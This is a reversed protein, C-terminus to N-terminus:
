RSSATATLKALSRCDCFAQRRQRGPPLRDGASRLHDTCRQRREVTVVVTATDRDSGAPVVRVMVAAEFFGGSDNDVTYTFTEIGTFGPSPSYLFANGTGNPGVSGNGSPGSAVGVLRPAGGPIRRDNALVDLFNDSTDSLVTFVDDGVFIEGVSVTVLASGTGGRGDSFNYSFTETGIFGATPTYFLFGGSPGFELTGGETPTNFGTVALPPGGLPMVVDNALVRLVNRRSDGAVCYLDDAGSLEGSRNIVNVTVTAARRPHTAVGIEYNITDLGVFGPAPTYIIASRASNWVVTGNGLTPNRLFTIQIAEGIIPLLVDNAVVPLTNGTSNWNVAFADNVGVFGQAGVTVTVTATGTGGFMDKVAYAFTESGSFGAPPSYSLSRGDASIIVGGGSSPAGLAAPDITWGAATAPLVGDNALVPLPNGQTDAVVFFHDAQPRLLDARNPVTIEVIAGFTTGGGATGVYSFTEVGTFGAAPSYRALTRGGQLVILASGGENPPTLSQLAISTGGPLALDNALLDLSVTGNPAVSFRDDKGVIPGSGPVVEVTVTALCFGFDGAAIQYTFTETGVFGFAPSYIVGTGDTAPLVTGGHDPTGVETVTLEALPLVGFNVDNMLVDLFVGVAGATVRFTDGNSFVLGDDTATYTFSDAATENVGLWEFMQNPEYDFSGDSFLTVIGGLISPFTAVPLSRLVDDPATANMDIDIDNSLVGDEVPINSGNDEFASVADDIADPRDNVGTVSVLVNATASGGNGDGITYQFQDIIVEKKSLQQLLASASPDYTFGSLGRTVIAGLTSTGDSATVTLTDDPATGNQDVDTDNALVDPDFPLQVATDENTAFPGDDHAVPADNVGTVSICVVAIGPAGHVDIM